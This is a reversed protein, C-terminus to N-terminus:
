HKQLTGCNRRNYSGTHCKRKRGRRVGRHQRRSGEADQRWLNLQDGAIALRAKMSVKSAVASVIGSGASMALRTEVGDRKRVAIAVFADSLLGNDPRCPDAVGFHMCPPALHPSM